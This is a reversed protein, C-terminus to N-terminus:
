RAGAAKEGPSWVVARRALGIIAAVLLAAPNAAIVASVFILIPVFGM